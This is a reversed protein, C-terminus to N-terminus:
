KDTLYEDILDKFFCWIKLFFIQFKPVKKKRILKNGSFIFIGCDPFLSYRSRHPNFCWYWKKKRLRSIPLKIGNGM